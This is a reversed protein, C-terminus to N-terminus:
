NRIYCSQLICHERGCSCLFYMENFKNKLELYKEKIKEDTCDILRELFIGAREKSFNYLYSGKEHVESLSLEVYELYCISDFNKAIIKQLKIIRNLMEDDLNLYKDIAICYYKMLEHAKNAQLSDLAEIAQLSGYTPPESALQYIERFKHDFHCNNFLYEDPIKDIPFQTNKYFEICKKADECWNVGNICGCPPNDDHCLFDFIISM